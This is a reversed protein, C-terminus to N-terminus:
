RPEFFEIKPDGVIGSPIPTGLLNEATNSVSIEIVNEDPVISGTLDFRYPPWLRVGLDRGNLIVRATERVDGLDLVARKGAYRDPLRFRHRYVVTGSYNGTGKDGWSLHSAATKRAIIMDYNVDFDGMIVVPEVRHLAPAMAPFPPQHSTVTIRNPGWRLIDSVDARRNARDWLFFPEGRNGIPRGNVSIDFTRDTEEWVLYARKPVHTQVFDAEIEYRAGEPPASSLLPIGMYRAADGILEQRRFYGKGALVLGLLRAFLVALRTERRFSTFSYCGIKKKKIWRARRASEALARVIGIAVKTWLRYRADRFLLRLSPFRVPPSSRILRFGDIRFINDDRSIIEWRGPFFLEGIKREPLYPLGLTTDSYDTHIVYVLSTDPDFRVPFTMQGPLVEFDTIVRRRGDQPDWAEPNGVGTLTLRGRFPEDGVYSLFLINAGYYSRTQHIFRDANDGSLSLRRGLNQDLHRILGAADKLLTADVNHSPSQPEGLVLPFRGVFVVATGAKKARTIFSDIAPTIHTAHPIVILSYRADGITVAGDGVEALGETVEEEFLFDFDRLDGTLAGVVEELREIVEHGGATLRGTGVTNAWLSTQPFLVLIDAIRDGVSTMVSLRSVYDAVIKFDEWYPERDYSPPFDRKRLGRTSCYIGHLFFFNAGLAATRDVSRKLSSPGTEWGAGEGISCLARGHKKTRSVSAAFRPAFSDLASPRDEFLRDEDAHCNTGPIDMSCFPVFPSGQAASIGEIFGRDGIIGSFSLRHERAWRGIERYYHSTLRGILSYYDVRVRVYEGVDAVLCPLNPILDYGFRKAFLDPLQQTWPLPCRNKPGLTVIGVITNGLYEKLHKEIGAHVIGMFHRVADPNMIDLVGRNTGALWPAATQAFTPASMPEVSAILCRKGHPDNGFFSIAGGKISYVGIVQQGDRIRRTTRFSIGRASFGPRETLVLGGATGSPGNYDDTLWVYLSLERAAGVIAALREWYEKSAFPVTIGSHAALAVTSFGKDSLGRLVETTASVDMEDNLFLWAAPSFEAPPGAFAEFLAKIKNQSGSTRPRRAFVSKTGQKM